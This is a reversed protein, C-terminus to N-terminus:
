FRASNCSGKLTEGAWQWRCSVYDRWMQVVHIYRHFTKVLHPISRCQRFHLFNYWVKINKKKKLSLTYHLRFVCTRHYISSYHHCMSNCCLLFIKAWWCHCLVCCKATVCHSIWEHGGKFSWWSIILVSFRHHGYADYGHQCMWSWGHFVGLLLRQKLTTLSTFTKDDCAMKRSFVKKEMRSYHCCLVIVDIYLFCAQLVFSAHLGNMVDTSVQGEHWFWVLPTWFDRDSSILWQLSKSHGTTTGIPAICWSM